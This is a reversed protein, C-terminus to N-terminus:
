CFLKLSTNSSNVCIHYYSWSCIFSICLIRSSFRYPIVAVHANFDDANKMRYLMVADRERNKQFLSSSYFNYLSELFGQEVCGVYLQWVHISSPLQVKLSALDHWQNSINETIQHFSFSLAHVWRLGRRTACSTSVLTSTHSQLRRVKENKNITTRTYSM